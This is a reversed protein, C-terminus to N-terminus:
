LVSAATLSAPPTLWEPWGAQPDLRLYSIGPLGTKVKDRHQELVATEISVKVRFMLKDRESRTEVEKPTFQSQPSIFTVRAPIAIEPLADVLIRAEDGLNLRGIEATPLYVPMYVQGIDLLTIVKGGAALVEGPETLRYLVRGAVPATLLTDDLLSQIQEVNAKAASIQDLALQVQRRAALLAAAASQSANLAQDLKDQSVLKKDVMSRVRTLEKQALVRDSDRQQVVALTYLHQQEAQRVASEAAALQAELQRSDLRALPQGPKVMDGEHVLVEIVRGAVKTAIDVEAAEIRGNAATLGPPLQRDGTLPNLLYIGAIALLSLIVVFPLLRRM